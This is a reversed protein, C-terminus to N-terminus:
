GGFFLAPATTAPAMFCSLGGKHSKGFGINPLPDVRETGKKKRNGV